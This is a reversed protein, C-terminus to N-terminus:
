PIQCLDVELKSISLNCAVPHAMDIIQNVSFMLPDNKLEKSASFQKQKM